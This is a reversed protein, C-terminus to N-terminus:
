KKMVRSKAGKNELRRQVPASELERLADSAIWRASSTNQLRIRKASQIALRNLRQNRKGIQRLAWNVAKRVYLRNDKAEREIIPLLKQFQLDDAEKDHVALYAMLSFGARKVYEKPHKSWEAAKNWAFPTRRFLYCCCGDCIAWSNFAGVWRDMQSQSVKDPEDVLAAIVRAEFIGCAWLEAALRHDRGLKRAVSKLVPTSIGLSRDSTIGFKEMGERAKKSGLSQLIKLVEEARM